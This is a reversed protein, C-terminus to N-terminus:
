NSLDKFKNYTNYSDSKFGLKDALNLMEDTLISEIVLFKAGNEKAIKEIQNILNTAVGIRKHNVAIRAITMTKIHSEVNDRIMLENDLSDFFHNNHMQHYNVPSESDSQLTKELQSLQEKTISQKKM